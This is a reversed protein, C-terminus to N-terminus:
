DLRGIVRMAEPRSIDMITLTSVKGWADCGILYLRGPVTAMTTTLWPEDSETPISGLIPFQAPIGRTDSTEIAGDFALVRDQHCQRTRVFYAGESAALGGITCYDALLSATTSSALLSPSGIEVAAAKLRGGTVLASGGRMAMYWPRQDLEMPVPPGVRPQSRDALDLASTLPGHDYVETVGAVVGRTGQLRVALPVMAVPVFGHRVMAEPRRADVVVLGADAPESIAYREFGAVYIWGDAVAMSFSMEHIALTGLWRPKDPSTVDVTVLYTGDGTSKEGIMRDSGMVYVINGSVEAHWAVVSDPWTWRVSGRPKPRGPDQADVVVLQVGGALYVFDGAAAVTTVGETLQEVLPTPWPTASPSIPPRATPLFLAPMSLRRSAQIAPSAEPVETRSGAQTPDATPEQEASRSLTKPSTSPRQGVTVLAGIAGATALALTSRWVRIM